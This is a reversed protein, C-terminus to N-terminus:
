THVLTTETEPSPVLAPLPASVVPNPGITNLSLIGVPAIALLIIGLNTVSKDFENSDSITFSINLPNFKPRLNSSTVDLQFIISLCFKFKVPGNLRPLAPSIVLLLISEEQNTANTFSM